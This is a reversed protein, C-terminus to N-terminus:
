PVMKREKKELLCSIKEYVLSTNYIDLFGNMALINVIYLYCSGLETMHSWSHM